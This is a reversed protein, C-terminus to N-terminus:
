QPAAFLSDEIELNIELSDFTMNINMGANTMEMAAPFSIGDQTHYSKVIMSAPLQGMPGMDVLMDMRVLLGTDKSYYCTQELGTAAAVLKVVHASQGDVMADPLKEGSSYVEDYALMDSFNDNQKLSAIEGESLLRFGQMPDNAWGTDGDYAQVMKGMGPIEQAVYLKDPAKMVMETTGNMGIAPIAMTGKLRSSQIAAIRDRGGSAKINADLVEAVEVPLAGQVTALFPASLFAFVIATKRFSSLKM